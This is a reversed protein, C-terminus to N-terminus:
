HQREAGSRSRRRWSSDPHSTGLTRDEAKSWSRRGRDGGPLVSGRSTGGVGAGRVEGTWGFSQSNRNFGRWKSGRIYAACFARTACQSLNIKWGNTGSLKVDKFINSASKIPAKFAASKKRKPARFSSTRLAKRVLCIWVKKLFQNLFVSVVIVEFSKEVIIVPRKKLWFAGFLNERDTQYFHFFTASLRFNIAGEGLNIGSSRPNKYIFM